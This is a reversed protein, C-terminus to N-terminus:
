DKRVLSIVVVIGNDVYLVRVTDESSLMNLIVNPQIQFM